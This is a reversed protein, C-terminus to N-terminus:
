SCGCPMVRWAAHVTRRPVNYCTHWGNSAGGVVCARVRGARSTGCRWTGHRPAAPPVVLVEIARKYQNRISTTRAPWSSTSTITLSKLVWLPLLYGRRSPPRLGRAFLGSPLPSPRQALGINDTHSANKFTTTRGPIVSTTLLVIHISSGHYVMALQCM